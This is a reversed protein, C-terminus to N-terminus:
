FRDISLLKAVNADDDYADDVDIEYYLVFSPNSPRYEMAM